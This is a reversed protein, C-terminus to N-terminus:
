GYKLQNNSLNILKDHLSIVQPILLQQDDNMVVFDCLRMKIDDEIQRSMRTLVEKRSVHDREMVRHIRLSKPAKVGIIFDLHAATGAEFLLAAEKVAYASTQSQMWVDAAALTAPHVLANLQELKFADKFVIDAIHKKNLLGNQYAENGFLNIIQHKLNEDENLIKKAVSDADFVPIGLVKFIEAVTSKGSGIGGTLGIKLAM